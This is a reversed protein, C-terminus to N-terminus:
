GETVNPVFINNNPNEEFIQIRKKMNNKEVIKEAEKELLMKKITLRSKRLREALRQKNGAGNRREHEITKASDIQVGVDTLFCNGENIIAEENLNKANLMKQQLQFIFYITQIIIKNSVVNESLKSCM